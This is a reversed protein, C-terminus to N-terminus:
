AATTAAAIAVQFALDIDIAKPYGFPQIRGTVHLTETQILNDSRSVVCAVGSAKPKAMLAAALANVAGNEMEKADEELIKGTKTDTAVGVSLRFDFYQQLVTAGINMIRRHQCYKFDSGNASFIRPNNVYTGQYANWSRAVTFRQDDLGPYISEDHCRPLLNGNEDYITCPLPGNRLAAADLEESLAALFPAFVWNWPRMYARGNIASPVVCAGAALSGYNMAESAWATSLSTQYDGDSEGVDPIRVSATWMRFKGRAAYGEFKAGLATVDAPDLPGFVSLIDWPVVSAALATLGDNLDTANWKAATTNATITDGTVLTGAAFDLTVGSGPLAFVMSTGLDTPASMTRGGDLSWRIIIGATGVTGGLDVAVFIEYDDAPGATVTSTVVSTGTGHLEIAWVAGPVSANVRVCLVPNGYREIAHAAGEVMPGDVLVEQLSKVTGFSQPLNLPGGTSCGVVALLSGFQPPLIGLANSQITILTKPQM